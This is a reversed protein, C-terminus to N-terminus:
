RRGRRGRKSSTLLRTSRKADSGLKLRKRPGALLMLALRFTAPLSKWATATTLAGLTVTPTAARGM